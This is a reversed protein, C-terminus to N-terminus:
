QPSCTRGVINIRLDTLAIPDIVGDSTDAIELLQLRRCLNSVPRQSARHRVPKELADYGVKRRVERALVSTDDAFLDMNRTPMTGSRAAPPVKSLIQQSSFVL